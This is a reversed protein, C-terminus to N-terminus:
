SIYILLIYESYHFYDKMSVIIKYFQKQEMSTSNELINEIKELTRSNNSENKGFLIYDANTGTTVCFDELLKISISLEGREIKGLHNESIELRESFRKRTEEFIKERIERMRLGIFFNDVTQM